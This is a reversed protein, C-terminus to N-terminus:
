AGPGGAGPQPPTGHQGGPGKGPGNGPGNPASGGPEPAAPPAADSPAAGDTSSDDPTTGQSSSGDSASSSPTTSSPTTTSPAPSSGRSPTTTGTTSPHDGGSGLLHAVPQVGAAALGSVALAAVLLGAGVLFGTGPRRRRPRRGHDLPEGAADWGDRDQGEAPVAPFEVTDHRWTRWTELQDVPNPEPDSSGHGRRGGDRAM